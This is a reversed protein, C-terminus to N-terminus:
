EYLVGSYVVIIPIYSSQVTLTLLKSFTAFSLHRWRGVGTLISSRVVHKVRPIGAADSHM